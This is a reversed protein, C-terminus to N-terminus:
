INTITYRLAGNSGALYDSARYANTPTQFLGCRKSIIMQWGRYGAIPNGYYDDINAVDAPCDYYKLQYDFSVPMTHTPTIQMPLVFTGFYSTGKQGGYAGTYRAFEVLQMSDPSIVAIENAGLIGQSYQDYYFDVGMAEIKTNLGNQALGKANQQNMFNLMLGSGYIQPKGMAFEAQQCETLIETLGDTLPLNTTNLTINITKSASSGTTPNVGFSVQNQLDGDLAALIANSGAMIQAIMEGMVATPPLGLSQTRNADSTYEQVLADELYLAVQRFVNVPVAVEQYANVNATACTDSTSTQGTVLRQLYKAQIFEIAGNGAPRNLNLTKAQSQLMNLFGLNDIKLQPANDQGVIDAINKLLYPNLGIGTQFGYGFTSM